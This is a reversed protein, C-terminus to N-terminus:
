RNWLSRNIKIMESLKDEMDKVLKFQNRARILNHLPKHTKFYIDGDLYDTLFRVGCEYTMLIASHALLEFEKANMIPACEELYGKVYLKYKELDCYVLDPNEEDELASSAGFRISDGFDYLLSGQMVTDLDIVCIGTHTDNDIMVNNLKTDNHCVRLPIGGSEIEDLVISAFNERAKVFEIETPIDAARNCVDADLSNIFNQYRNVTDHFRPITNVLLKADFDALQRAFKGFTRASEYFLEPTALQYCTAHEIFPYMRYIKGEYNLCTENDVTPIVTLTERLVDGGAASIQNKLHSTVLLINNMLSKYDKFISTNIEQLIYRDTPKNEHNYYVAYTTNIHGQGFPEGCLLNGEIPFHQTIAKIETLTM